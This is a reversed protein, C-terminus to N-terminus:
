CVPLSRRFRFLMSACRYIDWYSVSTILSERLNSVIKSLQPPQQGLGGPRTADMVFYCPNKM